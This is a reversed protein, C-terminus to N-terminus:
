IGSMAPEIERSGTSATHSPHYFTREVAPIELFGKVKSATDRSPPALDVFTAAIHINLSSRPGLISFM